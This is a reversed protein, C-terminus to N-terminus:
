NSRAVSLKKAHSEQRRRRRRARQEGDRSYAARMQAANLKAYGYSAMHARQEASTLTALADYRRDHRETEVVRPYLGTEVDRMFPGVIREIRSYMRRAGVFDLLLDLWKITECHNSTSLQFRDRRAVRLSRDIASQVCVQFLRPLPLMGEDQFSFMTPSLWSKSEADPTPSQPMLTLLKPSLISIVGRDEYSQLKEAFHRAQEVPTAADAHANKYDVKLDVSEFFRCVKEFM